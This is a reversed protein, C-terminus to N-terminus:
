SLTASKLKKIAEERVMEKTHLIWLGGKLNNEREIFEWARKGARPEGYKQFTENYPYYITKDTASEEFNSEKKIKEM